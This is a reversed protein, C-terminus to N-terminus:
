GADPGEPSSSSPRMVIAAQGPFRWAGGIEPPPTGSGGYCADESSWLLEWRRDEPPALLPEPAADLHLDVGLNVALLRDEGQEGFYRILFAHNSLVAGDLGGEGQMRFVPDQRRLRILDKHLAYTRAHRERDAFDLKCKQFTAPNGPDLVATIKELSALSPFQSLFKARGEHILKALDPRHDAFYCFPKSSAFEQGQFLM